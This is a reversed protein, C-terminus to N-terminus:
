ISCIVKVLGIDMAVLVPISALKIGKDVNVDYLRLQFLSVSYRRTDSIISYYVTSIESSVYKQM